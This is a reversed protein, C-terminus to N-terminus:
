LNRSRSIPDELDKNVRRRPSQIDDIPSQIKTINKICMKFHAEIRNQSPFRSKILTKPQIIVNQVSYEM